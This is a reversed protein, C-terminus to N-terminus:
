GEILSGREERERERRAERKKIEKSKWLRVLIEGKREDLDESWIRKWIEERNEGVKRFWESTEECERM